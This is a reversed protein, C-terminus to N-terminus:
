GLRPPDKYNKIEISVDTNSFAVTKERCIVYHFLFTSRQMESTNVPHMNQAASCM